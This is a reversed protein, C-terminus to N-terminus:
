VHFAAKTIAEPTLVSSTPGHGILTKSILITEPIHTRVQNIDHLIILITKGQEHWQKLITLLHNTTPEDIGIFPEDLLILSANQLMVRAFLLRQLQGGSLAQIPRRELGELGMTKLALRVNNQIEGKFRKLLGMQNWLGMAAVDEVCLPFHRDLTNSQPLYAINKPVFPNQVNGDTPSILGGITKLLTSKGAGNPGIIACFSGKKITLHCKRLAQISGYSHSHIQIILNDM